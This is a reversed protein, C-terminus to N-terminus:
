RWMWKAVEKEKEKEAKEVKKVWENGSGGTPSGGNRSKEAAAGVFYAVGAGVIGTGIATRWVARRRRRRERRESKGFKHQSGTADDSRRSHRWKRRTGTFVPYEERKVRPYHRWDTETDFVNHSEDPLVAKSPSTNDPKSQQAPKVIPEVQHDPQMRPTGDIPNVDTSSLEHQIKALTNLTKSRLKALNSDQWHDPHNEGAVLGHDELAPTAHEVSAASPETVKRFVLLDKTGYLKTARRSCSQSRV